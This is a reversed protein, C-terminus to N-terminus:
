RSKRFQREFEFFLTDPSVVYIDSPFDSSAVIEKGIRNAPLYGYAHDGLYRIRINRLSVDFAREHRVLFKESFLEFGQLRIRLTLVSDSCASMKLHSPVQSYNLRYEVSYYYDKSLRVLGWFFVSLFLCVLFVPLQNRFRESRRQRANGLFEIFDSKM